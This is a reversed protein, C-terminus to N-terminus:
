KKGLFIDGYICAMIDCTNHSWQVFWIIRVHVIIDHCIHSWTGGPDMTVRLNCFHWLWTRKRYTPGSALFFFIYGSALQTHCFCESPLTPLFHPQVMPKEGPFQDETAQWAGLVEFIDAIALINSRGVLYAHRSHM